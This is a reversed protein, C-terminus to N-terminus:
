QNLATLSAAQISCDRLHYVFDPKCLSTGKPWRGTRATMLHVRLLGYKRVSRSGECLRLDLIEDREHTSSSLDAAHHEFLIHSIGLAENYHAFTRTPHADASQLVGLDAIALSDVRLRSHRYIRLLKRKLEAIEKDERARPFLTNSEGEAISRQRGGSASSHECGCARVVIAHMHNQWHAAKRFRTLWICRSASSMM